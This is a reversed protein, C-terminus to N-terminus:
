VNHQFDSSACYLYVVNAAMCLEIGKAQKCTASYLTYVYYYVYYYEYYYVYLYVSRNSHPTPLRTLTSATSHWDAYWVTCGTSHPSGLASLLPHKSNELLHAIQKTNRHVCVHHHMSLSGVPKINASAATATATIATPIKGTNSELKGNGNWALATRPQYSYM